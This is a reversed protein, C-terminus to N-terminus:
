IEEGGKGKGIYLDGEETKCLPRKELEFVIMEYNRLSM